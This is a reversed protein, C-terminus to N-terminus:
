DICLTSFILELFSALRKLDKKWNEAPGQNAATIDNRTVGIVVYRIIGSSNPLAEM